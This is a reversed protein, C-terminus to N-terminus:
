RPTLKFPVTLRPNGGVRVADGVIVGSDNIGTANVLTLGSNAPILTNLDFAQGNQFLFAHGGGDEGVIQGKNNLANASANGTTALRVPLQTEKGGAFLVARGGDVGVAQGALNVALAEANSGAQGPFATIRGGLWSVAFIGRNSTAAGVILGNDNIADPRAMGGLTPLTTQKGNQLLWATTNGNDQIQGVVQGNDNLGKARVDVGLGKGVGLDTGVTNPGSWLMPREHEDVQRNIVLGSPFRFGAAQGNNNLALPETFSRKQPDQAPPLGTLWGPTATGAKQIFGQQTVAGPEAGIGIIDGRANIAHYETTGAPGQALTFTPAAQPTAAVALPTAALAATLTGAGILSLLRRKGRGRPRSGIGSM